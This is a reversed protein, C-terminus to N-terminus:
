HAPPVFMSDNIFRIRERIKAVIPYDDELSWSLLTAVSLGVVIETLTAPSFGPRLTGAAQADEMIQQIVGTFQEKQQRQMERDGTGSILYLNLLAKYHANVKELAKAVNLLCYEMRKRPDGERKFDERFIAYANSSFTSAIHQLLHDKTPFHNFFTKHAIDAEKIISAVSTEAVGNEEFLKLAAETIRDRFELKRREIRNLETNDDSVALM